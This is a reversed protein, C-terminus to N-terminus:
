LGFSGSLGGVFGLYPNEGSQRYSISEVGVWIIRLNSMNKQSNKLNLMDEPQFVVRSKQKFVHTM